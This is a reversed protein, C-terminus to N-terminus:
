VNALLQRREGILRDGCFRLTGLASDGIEDPGVAEASEAHQHLRLIRCLLNEHGSVSGESRRASQAVFFPLNIMSITSLRRGLEPITAQM